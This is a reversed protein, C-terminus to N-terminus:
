VITEAFLLGHLVVWEERKLPLNWFTDMLYDNGTIANKIM